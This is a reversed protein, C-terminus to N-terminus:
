ALGSASGSSSVGRAGSITSAGGGGSGGGGGPARAAGLFGLAAIPAPPRSCMASINLLPAYTGPSVSSPLLTFLSNWFKQKKSCQIKQKNMIHAIQEFLASHMM